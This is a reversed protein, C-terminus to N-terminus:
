DDNRPDNLCPTADRRTRAHGSAGRYTPRNFEVQRRGFKGTRVM